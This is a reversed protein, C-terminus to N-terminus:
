GILLLDVMQYQGVIVKSIEARIENVKTNLESVPTREPFFQEEM